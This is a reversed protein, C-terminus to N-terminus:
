TLHPRACCALSDVCRLLSLWHRPSSLHTKTPPLSMRNRPATSALHPGLRWMLLLQVGGVPASRQQMRCM